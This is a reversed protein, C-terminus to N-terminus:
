YYTRDPEERVYQTLERANEVSNLDHKDVKKQLM